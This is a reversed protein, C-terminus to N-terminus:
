PEDACEVGHHLHQLHGSVTCKLSMSGAWRRCTSSLKTTTRQSRREATMGDPGFLRVDIDGDAHLFNVQAVVTGGPALMVEYTRDGSNLPPEAFRLLRFPCVITDNPEFQDPQCPQCARRSIASRATAIAIVMIEVRAKRLVRDRVLDCKAPM